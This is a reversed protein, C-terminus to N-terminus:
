DREENLEYLPTWEEIGPTGLIENYDETFHTGYADLYRYAVPMLKGQMKEAEVQERISFCNNCLMSGTNPVANDASLIVGCDFCPQGFRFVHPDNHVYRM